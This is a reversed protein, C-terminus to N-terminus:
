KQRWGKQRLAFTWLALLCALILYVTGSFGPWFPWLRIGLIPPINASALSTPIYPLWLSVIAMSLLSQALRALIYRSMRVGTGALCAAVQSLISLGSWSLILATTCLRQSLPAQAVAIQQCGISMELTGSLLGPALEPSAQLAPLARELLALAPALLGGASLLRFAVVFFIAYGGIILISHMGKGIAAGLTEGAPVSQTLFIRWEAKWRYRFPLSVSSRGEPSLRASILGVLLNAGYHSVALLLGVEASGYMGAGVAGLMFLPSANNTFLVLREGEAATLMGERILQATMIAGVPFGTTFGVAVVVAAAGPLRFLPRMLPELVAGVLRPLGLALILEAVVLFPFLAPLLVTLWLQLGERAASLSVAPYFVMFPTLLLFFVTLILPGPVLPVLSVM